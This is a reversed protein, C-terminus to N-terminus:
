GTGPEDDLLGEELLSDEPVAEPAAQGGPQSTEAAAQGAQAALGAQSLIGPIIEQNGIAMVHVGAVGPVERLERIIEACLQAGEDRIREAGAKRLRDAVQEPVVVGPVRHQLHDLAGLSLVPGVGALVSCREHLGLDRVRGMWRAFATVDFVFQTQVFEAGADVKEGLRAVSAEPPDAPNEVAGIFWSPPPQLARGSMLRGEDRMTRAVRLLQISDLDFVAKADAHDGFRPHDGTMLLVNPIGLASASLLDSQLAIRNRDRCTLQMIPTVGAASAVLSGALSSLRVAASQNDTINVADVWGRLLAATRRVPEADAGRPPGIEATVAFRGAQLAQRLGGPQGGPPQAQGHTSDPKRAM